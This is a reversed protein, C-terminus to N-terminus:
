WILDLVTFVLHFSDAVAVTTKTVTQEKPLILMVEYRLSSFFINQITKMFTYLVRMSKKMFRVTGFKKKGLRFKRGFWVKIDSGFNKATRYFTRKPVTPYFLRYVHQIINKLKEHETM